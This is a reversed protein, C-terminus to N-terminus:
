KRRARIVAVAATFAAAAGLFAVSPPEPAEAPPAANESDADAMDFTESFINTGSAESAIFIDNVEVNTQQTLFTGEVGPVNPNFGHSALTGLLLGNLYTQAESNEPPAGFGPTHLTPPAVTSTISLNFTLDLIIPMGNPLSNGTPPTIQESLQLQDAGPVGAVVATLNVPAPSVNAVTFHLDSINWTFLGDNTVVQCSTPSVLTGVDCTSAFAPASIALGVTFCATILWPFRSM